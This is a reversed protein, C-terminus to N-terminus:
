QAWTTSRSSSAPEQARRSSETAMARIRAPPSSGWPLDWAGCTPRSKDAGIPSEGLLPCRGGRQPRTGPWGILSSGQGVVLDHGALTPIACATTCNRPRSHWDPERTPNLGGLHGCRGHFRDSYIRPHPADSGALTGATHKITSPFVLCAVLCAVFLVFLRPPAASDAFPALCDEHISNVPV